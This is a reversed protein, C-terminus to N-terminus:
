DARLNLLLLLMAPACNSCNLDLRSTVIYTSFQGAFLYLALGGLSLLLLLPVVGIFVYTVILRNRMRWLLQASVRRVALVFLLLIAVLSLFAVWAGLYDGFHRHFVAAIKQVLCLLVDFVLLYCTIVAMRGRPFLGRKELWLRLRLLRSRM